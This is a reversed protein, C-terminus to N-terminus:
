WWNTGRKHYERFSCIRKCDDNCVLMQVFQRYLILSLEALWHATWGTGCSPHCHPVRDRGEVSSHFGGTAVEKRSLCVVALSIDSDRRGVKHGPSRGVVVRGKNPWGSGPSSLKHICQTRIINNDNHKNPRRSQLMRNHQLVILGYQDCLGSKTNQWWRGNVEVTILFMAVWEVMIVNNWLTVSM